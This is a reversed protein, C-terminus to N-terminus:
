HCFFLKWFTKSWFIQLYNIMDLIIIINLSSTATNLGEGAHSLFSHIDSYWDTSHKMVSPLFLAAQRTDIVILIQQKCAHISFPLITSRFDASSIKGLNLKLYVNHTM